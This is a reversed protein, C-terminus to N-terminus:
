MYATLWAAVASGRFRPEWMDDQPRQQQGHLRDLQRPDREGVCTDFVDDHAVVVKM